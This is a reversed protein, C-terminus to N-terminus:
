PYRSILEGAPGVGYTTSDFDMRKFSLKYKPPINMNKLSREVFDILNDHTSCLRALDFVLYSMCQSTMRDSCQWQRQAEVQVEEPLTPLLKEITLKDKKILDNLIKMKQKLPEFIEKQRKEFLGHFQDIYDEMKKVSDVLRKEKEITEQLHKANKNKVKILEDCFDNARDLASTNTDYLKMKRQTRRLNMELEGKSSDITAAQENIKKCMIQKKMVVKELKRVQKELVMIMIIDDETIRKYFERMMATNSSGNEIIERIIKNYEEQTRFFATDSTLNVNYFYKSFRSIQKEIIKDTESDIKKIYDEVYKDVQDQFIQKDRNIVENEHIVKLKLETKKDILPQLTSLDWKADIEKCLENTQTKMTKERENLDFEIFKNEENMEKIVKECVEAEIKDRNMATAKIRYKSDQLKLKTMEWGVRIQACQVQLFNRDKKVTDLKYLLSHAFEQLKPFKMESTDTGDVIIKEVKGKKKDGM